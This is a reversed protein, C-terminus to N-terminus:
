RGRATASRKGGELYQRIVPHQKYKQFEDFPSIHPNHGLDVILGLSVQNGQVAM